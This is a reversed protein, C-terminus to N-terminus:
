FRKTLTINVMNGQPRGHSEIEYVYRLSTILGLKPCVMNIEPGLGVVWPLNNPAGAGTAKTTQLQYYGVLGVDITKRFSKAIGWEMTLYQGPTIDTDQQEQNFEYRNLLSVSWTKEEDPYWTAGATLMQTWFGKGPSVPDTPSYDGSPAWFGYGVAFDFQKPHWSLTIPEFFIDGLGFKSGDFGGAQLDQYPFPVLVDAGYFGGLIKFDTIYILRPAQVYAFLDFGPPGGKFNDSWYFYNYDRAYFGPPPLSAAKIGEVGQPYHTQAQLAGPVVILGAILLSGISNTRQNKMISM